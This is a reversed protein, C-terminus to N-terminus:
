TVTAPDCNSGCVVAVVREGPAPVYAGSRLAALATAGGPEVVLRLAEWLARQASRIDEDTVRVAHSVHARVLPWALSGLRRAGLSDSALGSVEVTTPTGAALAAHLCSSTFPEVSVVRRSGALWAAQGAIFGGGGAAVLLTDYGDLQEELEAAMTGQGAIVDLHEYPHVALASTEAQRATAAAQADDYLGEILRVTAGSAAIRARKLPPSSAPVFVECAHGLRQAAWAVAVGHNGGSAAILGAPPVLGAQSAVLIRNFAGRAKFSGTVQMLELKLTLDFNLGLEGAKLRLVPTARVYPAIRARASAIRERTVDSGNM